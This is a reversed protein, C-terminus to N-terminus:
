ADVEGAGAAAGEGEVREADPSPGVAAPHGACTWGDPGGQKLSRNGGISYADCRCAYVRSTAGSGVKTLEPNTAPDLTAFLAEYEARSSPLRMLAWGEFARVMEGCDRCRVRSCPVIAGRDTWAVADSAPMTLHTGALMGEDLCFVTDGM